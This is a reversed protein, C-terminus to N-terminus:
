DLSQGDLLIVKAYVTGGPLSAAGGSDNNYGITLSGKSHITNYTYGSITEPLADFSANNDFSLYVVVAGSSMIKDDIEPVSLSVSYQFLDSGSGAVWDTTNIQYTTSYVQNVQQYVTKKCAGLTLISLLLAAVVTIRTMKM